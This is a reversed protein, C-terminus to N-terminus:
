LKFTKGVQVLKDTSYQFSAQLYKNYDAPSHEIELQKKITAHFV